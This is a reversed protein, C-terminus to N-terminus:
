LSIIFYVFKKLMTLAWGDVAIDQTAALFNLFFFAMTLVQINPAISEEEGLYHNVKSSLYIMSLGLVYQVPVLWTKRRGMQSSYLSDVIPAWILKLSFPWYVLSFQAQEKYSVHRNQLLLPIAAILGLPIGQLLYLLFLLAINKKDLKWNSQLQIDDRGKERSISDTKILVHKSDDSARKRM